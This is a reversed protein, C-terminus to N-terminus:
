VLKSIEENENILQLGIYCLNGRLRMTIIECNPALQRM